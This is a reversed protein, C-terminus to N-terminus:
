LGLIQDFELEPIPGEDAGAWQVRQMQACVGRLHAGSAAGVFIAGRTRLGHRRCRLASDKVPTFPEGGGAEPRDASVGDGSLSNPVLLLYRLTDIGISASRHYLAATRDLFDSASLRLEVFRQQSLRYVPM